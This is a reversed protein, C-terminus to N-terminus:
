MEVARGTGMAAAERVSVNAVELLVDAHCPQDLRCWCALNKGALQLRAHERAHNNEAALLEARFEAVSEAQTHEIGCVQCLGVRHPNGWKSPRAVNVTNPPLRWGKRRSLQVRTPREKM